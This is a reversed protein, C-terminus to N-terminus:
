HQPAEAVPTTDVPAQERPRLLFLVVAAALAAAGALLLWHRRSREQLGPWDAPQYRLRGLAEELRAVEVDPTGTRDWLYQDDM